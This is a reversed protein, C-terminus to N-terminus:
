PADLLALDLGALVRERARVAVGERGGRENTNGEISRLLGGQDRVCFGTHTWDGARRGRVLFIAAGPFSPAADTPFLRGAARAGRAIEDCGESLRFPIAAGTARGGPPRGDVRFGRVV